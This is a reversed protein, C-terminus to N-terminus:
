EPRIGRERIIRGRRESENRVFAAFAQPTDGVADAGLAAMQEKVAPTHLVEVLAASLRDVTDAPTGKAVFMGNWGVM